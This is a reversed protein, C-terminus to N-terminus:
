PQRGKWLDLAATRERTSQELCTYFALAWISGGESQKSASKCGPDRGKLWARQETRLAIRQQSSLSKMVEGYRINLAADAARYDRVACANMEQQTGDPKCALPNADDAAQVGGAFLLM